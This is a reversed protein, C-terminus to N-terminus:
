PAPSERRQPASTVRALGVQDLPLHSWAFPVYGAVHSYFGGGADPHNVRLPLRAEFTWIRVPAVGYAAMIGTVDLQPVNRATAVWDGGALESLGFRGHYQPPRIPEFGERVLYHQFGWQGILWRRGPADGIEQAIERAVERYVNRQRVDAATLVLAVALLAAAWAAGARPSPRLGHRYVLLLLPPAALLADAANVHWNVLASFVLLGTLWALLFRDAAAGSRLARWGAGGWAVVAGAIAIAGLVAEELDLSARRIPRGEPLVLVMVLAGAVLGAVALETGAGRALRAVWLLIPFGLAAGYYVPLSLTQNWLENASLGKAVVLSVGGGFHVSGYLAHTWAGWVALIAVPIGAVRLWRAPTAPTRAPLLVLGAALLPLASMGVYKTLAAAGAAFGAACEWGAGGADNARLLAYVSALMLALVPVDLMLTTALLLFAPTSVLLAVPAAGASALRRAIGLFSLAAVLPFPLVALHLAWEQPGLLAVVPALWYSLLPPNHNFEFVHPSTPDWVMEFGYPDLPHAAIQEAVAVFVPADISVAAGLFPLLPLVALAGVLWAERSRTM